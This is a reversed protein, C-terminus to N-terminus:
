LVTLSTFNFTLLAGPVCLSRTEGPLPPHRRHGRLSGFGLPGCPPSKREQVQPKWVAHGQSSWEVVQSSLKRTQLIPTVPM